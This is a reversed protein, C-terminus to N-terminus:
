TVMGGLTGSTNIIAFVTTSFRGGLDNCTGWVTPQSWDSFFKAAMLVLGAAVRNEQRAVFGLMLCGILKGAFGVGSRAWRRHGTQAILRDNDLRWFTTIERFFSTFTFSM